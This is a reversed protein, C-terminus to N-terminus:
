DRVYHAADGTRQPKGALKVGVQSLKRNVKNRERAKMEKSGSIGRKARDRGSGKRCGSNVVQDSLHYLVPEGQKRV